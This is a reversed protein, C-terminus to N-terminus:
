ADPAYHGWLSRFSGLVFKKSDGWQAEYEKAPGEAFAEDPGLGKVLSKVTRDFITMFTERQAPM